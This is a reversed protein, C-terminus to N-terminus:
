HVVRPYVNAPEPGVPFRKENDIGCQTICPLAKAVVLEALDDSEARLVRTDGDAGPSRDQNAAIPDDAVDEGWYLRWRSFPSVSM